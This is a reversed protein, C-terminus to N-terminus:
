KSATSIYKPTAYALNEIANNIGNGDKHMIKLNSKPPSGVFVQMVLHHMLLNKKKGDKMIVQTRLYRGSKTGVSYKEKEARKIRGKDSVSYSFKTDMHLPKWIEGPMTNEYYKWIFGGARKRKGSLVSNIMGTSINCETEATTISDWITIEKSECSLQVIKRQAGKNTHNKRNNCNGKGDIWRLNTHCNNEKNQDIHDVQTHNNDNSVVFARAVLKHVTKVEKKGANMKILCYVYGNDGIFCKHINYTTKNRIRGMNSIEYNSANDVSKWTENESSHHYSCLYLPGYLVNYLQSQRMKKRGRVNRNKAVMYLDKRSVCAYCVSEAM